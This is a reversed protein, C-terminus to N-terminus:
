VAPEGFQSQGSGSRLMAGIEAGRARFLLLAAVVWSVAVTAWAMLSGELSMADVANPMAAPVIDTTNNVAAHMLMV